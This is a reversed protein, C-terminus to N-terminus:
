PALGLGKRIETKVADFDTRFEPKQMMLTVMVAGGIHGGEWDSPYAVGSAVRQEGYDWGRAFLERRREPVMMALLFAAEAGFTSHGSPYTPSQSAAAINAPPKVEPNAQFPRSRKYAQKIPGVGVGSETRVKDFFAGALPFREKTFTPGFVEAAFRYVSQETDAQISALREPTVSKQLELVIQMDRKDRASGDAPPPPLLGGFDADGANLYPKDSLAVASAISCCLLMASCLVLKRM